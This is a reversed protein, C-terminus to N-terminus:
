SMLLTGKKKSVSCWHAQLSFRQVSQDPSYYGPTEIKVLDANHNIYQIRIIGRQTCEKDGTVGKLIIPKPLQFMQTFDRKDHSCSSACGTDVIWSAVGDILKHRNNFDNVLYEKISERKPLPDQNIDLHGPLNRCGKVSKRLEIQPETHFDPLSSVHNLASLM